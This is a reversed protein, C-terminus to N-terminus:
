YFENYKCVVDNGDYCFHNFGCPFINLSNLDSNLKKFLKVFKLDEVKAENKQIQALIFNNTSDLLLVYDDYFKSISVYNNEYGEFTCNKILKKENIDILYISHENSCIGLVNNESGILGM